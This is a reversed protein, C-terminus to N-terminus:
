VPCRVETCGSTDESGGSAGHRGLEIGADLSTTAALAKRSKSAARYGVDRKVAISSLKAASDTEDSSATVSRSDREVSRRQPTETGAASAAAVVNSTESSVVDRESSLRMVCGSVADKWLQRIGHSAASLTAVAADTQLLCGVSVQESFLTRLHPFKLKLM